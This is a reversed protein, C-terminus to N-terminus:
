KEGWSVWGSNHMFAGTPLEHSHKCGTQKITVYSTVWYGKNDKVEVKYTGKKLKLDVSNIKTSCSSCKGNSYSLTNFCDSNDKYVDEGNIKIEKLKHGKHYNITIYETKKDCYGCSETKGKSTVTPNKCSVAYTTMTSGFLMVVALVLIM